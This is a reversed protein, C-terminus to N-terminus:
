FWNTLITKTKFSRAVVGHLWSIQVTINVENASVTEIQIERRFRTQPWAGNYGYVFTVPDQRLYPCSNWGSCGINSLPNQLPYINADVTCTNPPACASGATAIGSLWNTPTNNFNALVNADRMNRIIEIAEQSLYFAQSQEKALSSGVLGTRVAATAGAIALSVVAIAVITELVTFGKKM